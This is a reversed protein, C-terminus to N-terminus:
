PFSRLTEESFMVCHRMTVRRRIAHLQSFLIWGVANGAVKWTRLIMDATIISEIGYSAMISPISVVMQGV